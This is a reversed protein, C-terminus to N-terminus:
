ARYHTRSSKRIFFRVRYPGMTNHAVVIATIPDGGTLGTDGASDAVTPNPRLRNVDNGGGTETQTVLMKHNHSPIEPITLSHKEEGGTDGENLVTGSPLTGPGIPFMAAFDTDEQWMPGTFATIPGVEGGDLTDIDALSTGAPALMTFGTPIAHKAVWVGSTFYYLKDPVGSITKFWAKTLDAPAAEGIHVNVSVDAEGTLLSVLLQWQADTVPVCAGVPISSSNIEVNPM